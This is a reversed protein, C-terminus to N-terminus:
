VFLDLDLSDVIKKLERKLKENWVNGMKEQKQKQFYIKGKLHWGWFIKMAPFNEQVHDAM